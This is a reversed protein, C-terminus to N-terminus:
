FDESDMQGVFDMKATDIAILKNDPESPAITVKGDTITVTFSVWERSTPSVKCFGVATLTKPLNTEWEHQSGEFIMIPKVEIVPSQTEKIKTAAKSM